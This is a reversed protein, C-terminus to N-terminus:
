HNRLNFGTVDFKDNDSTTDNDLDSSGRIIDTHTELNYESQGIM